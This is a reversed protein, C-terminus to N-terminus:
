YVCVCVGETRECGEATPKHSESTFTPSLQTKHTEAAAPLDFSQDFSETSYQVIM